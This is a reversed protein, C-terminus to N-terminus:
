NAYEINLIVTTTSTATTKRVYIAFSNNTFISKEMYLRMTTSSSPSLTWSNLYSATCDHNLTYDTSATASVSTSITVGNTVVNIAITETASSSTYLGIRKILLPTTNNTWDYIRVWVNQTLVGSNNVIRGKDRYGNFSIPVGTLNAYPFTNPYGTLNNYPFTQPVDTLNGYPYTSPFSSTSSEPLILGILSLAIALVAIIFILSNSNSM